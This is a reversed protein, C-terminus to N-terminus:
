SREIPRRDEKNRGMFCKIASSLLFILNIRFLVLNIETQHYNRLEKEERTRKTYDAPTELKRRNNQKEDSKVTRGVFHVLM